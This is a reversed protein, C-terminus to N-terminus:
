VERGEFGDDAWANAWMDNFFNRAKFAALTSKGAM